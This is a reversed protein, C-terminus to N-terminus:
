LTIKGTGTISVTRNSDGLSLDISVPSPSVSITTGAPAFTISISSTGGVSVGNELAIYGGDSSEGVITKNTEPDTQGPRFFAYTNPHDGGDRAMFRLIYTVNEQEALAKARKMAAEVQKAGASLANDRMIGTWNLAAMSLLVGLICITVLLEVLTFGAEGSRDTNVRNLRM